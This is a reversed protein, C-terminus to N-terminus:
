GAGSEGGVRGVDGSACYGVPDDHLKRSDPFEYPSVPDELPPIVTKSM